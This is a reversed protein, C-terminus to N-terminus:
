SPADAAAVVAAAVAVAVVAAAAVVVEVEVVCAGEVGCPAAAVVAAGVWAVERATQHWTPGDHTLIHIYYNNLSVQSIYARTYYIVKINNARLHSKDGREFLTIRVHNLTYLEHFNLTLYLILTISLHLTCM